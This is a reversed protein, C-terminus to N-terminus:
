GTARVKGRLSKTEGRRRKSEVMRAKLGRSRKAKRCRERSAEAMAALKKKRASEALKEELRERALARNQSQSRSDTATVIIGTPIHKLTVATSVKNVHQGGPGSSRHFIQLIDEDRLRIMCVLKM